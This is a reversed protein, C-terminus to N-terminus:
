AGRGEVMKRLLTVSEALQDLDRVERNLLETNSIFIDHIKRLEQHALSNLLGTFKFVWAECHTILSHKLPGCDIRLFRMNTSTEEGVVAEQLEKYRMIDSDFASLPKKAREYRRIYADKDQDWIHRYKKDWYTLFQQLKEVIGRAGITITTITKLTSDEDNSIIDYFSPLEEEQDSSADTSPVQSIRPVIQIVTILDRSETNIMSLIAQISPNLEVNSSTELGLVVSFM